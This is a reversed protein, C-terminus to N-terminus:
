LSRIGRIEEQNFGLDELFEQHEEPELEEFNQHWRIMASDELGSAKMIELWREKTVM